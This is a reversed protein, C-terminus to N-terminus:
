LKGIYAKITKDGTLTYAISRMCGDNIDGKMLKLGERGMYGGPLIIPLLYEDKQITDKYRIISPIARMARKSGSLLDINKKFIDTKKIIMDATEKLSGETWSIPLDGAGRWVGIEDITMHGLYWKVKNFANLRSPSENNIIEDLIKEDLKSVKKKIKELEKSFNSKEMDLTPVYKSLDPINERKFTFIDSIIYNQKVRIKDVQKLSKM